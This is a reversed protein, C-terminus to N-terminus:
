ATRAIMEAQTMRRPVMAIFGIPASYHAANNYGYGARMRSPTAPMAGATDTGVSAGNVVFQFNDEAAALAAKFPSAAAGTATFNAVFGAASAVAAAISGAGSAGNAMYARGISTGNDISVPVFGGSATDPCPQAHVISTYAAPDFPVKTLDVYLADAGRTVTTTEDGLIISTPFAGQELWAAATYWGLGDAVANSNSTTRGTIICTIATGAGGIIGTLSIQYFTLGGVTGFPVIRGLGGSATGGNSAAISISGSQLDLEVSNQNAANSDDRIMLGAYRCEGTKMAVIATFTAASAQSATVNRRVQRASGGGTAAVIYDASYGSIPSAVADTEVTTFNKVWAANNFQTPYTNLRTRQPEPLIGLPVGTASHHCRLATSSTWIGASNRLWKTPPSPYVPIGRALAQAMSGCFDNAPTVSDRVLVFDDIPDLVFRDEGPLFNLARYGRAATGLNRYSAILM